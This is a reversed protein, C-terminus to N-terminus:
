PAVAFRWVTRSRFPRGPRLITSPFAPQNPSDPFHQTELCFGAHQTYAVGGKGVHRGDLFNGTYLQVGPETTLVELVRGSRPERVRAALAPGPGDGRLVFNHDFGRGLKLQEHDAAIRSGLVTAERLDFPTGAVVALEGTPILTADVPTFHEAAISIEHALVDGGAAGALNFYSHQSLNLPTPRDTTACYDISLENADSLTYTVEAHVTGPYGEEGDWSTYRLVVGNTGPGAFPEASWVVKDFGKCGGHLHNSDGNVALTYSEGDLTFRGGAIRNAYRGLLAGLYATDGLYGDLADYGLVVDDFLGHCDPLLLSVIIGGYNAVGASLGHANRLTYLSVTKGDASGFPTANM